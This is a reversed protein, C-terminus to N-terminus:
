ILVLTALIQLFNQSQCFKRSFLPVEDLGKVIAECTKTGVKYFHSVEDVAMYYKQGYHLGSTTDHHTFSRNCTSALKWKQSLKLKLLFIVKLLEFIIQLSVYFILM